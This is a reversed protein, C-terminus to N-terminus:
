VPKRMQRVTRVAFQDGVGSRSAVASPQIESVRAASSAVLSAAQWRRARVNWFQTRAEDVSSKSNRRVTHASNKEM